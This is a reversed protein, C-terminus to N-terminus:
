VQYLTLARGTGSGSGAVVVETPSVQWRMIPGVELILITRSAKQDLQKFHPYFNTVKVACSRHSIETLNPGMTWDFIKGSPVAM